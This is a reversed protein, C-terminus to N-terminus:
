GRRVSGKTLSVGVSGSRGAPGSRGARTLEGLDQDASRPGPLRLDESGRGARALLALLQVLQEVLTRSAPGDGPRPGLDVPSVLFGRHGPFLPRSVEALWHVQVLRGQGAAAATGAGSNGCHWPSVPSPRPWVEAQILGWGRSKRRPRNLNVEELWPLPPALGARPNARRRWPISPVAM